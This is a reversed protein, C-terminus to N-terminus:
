LEGAKKRVTTAGHVDREGNLRRSEALYEAQRRPMRVSTAEGQWLGFAYGFLASVVGAICVWAVVDEPQISM